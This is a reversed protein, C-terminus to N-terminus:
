EVAEPGAEPRKVDIKELDIEGVGNEFAAVLHPVQKPLLGRGGFHYRSTVVSDLALIDTSAFLRNELAVPGPGTPGGTLLVRSADIINLGPRVALALDGIAQGLDLRTHFVSRNWILGMLNKMALSVRAASHHKATAVNIMLDVSRLLKLTETKKLAQGDVEVPEFLDQKDALILETRPYRRAVKVIEANRFRSAQQLTHDAIVIRGVGGAILFACLADVLAPSTTTALGPPHPLCLNPKILVASESLDGKIFKQIGGLSAFLRRVADGPAGAVEWVVPKAVDSSTLNFPFLSAALAAGGARLFERRKM